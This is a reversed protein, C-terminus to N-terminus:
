LGPVPFEPLWGPNVGVQGSSNHGWCTATGDGLRACSHGAADVGGIGSGGAAVGTAGSVGAVAVPQLRDTRTGDGLQGTTNAGWCRVSGDALTACTHNAGASVTKATTIGSVAVPAARDTRTGDGLQGSYNSGWCRVGGGALVVCRHALGVSVSAVGSLGPNGVVLDHGWCRVTADAMRACASDGGAAIATAGSALVTAGPDTEWATCRVAGTATLYCVPGVEGDFAAVATAGSIGPLLYPTVFSFVGGDFPAVVVDNGWCLVRGAGTAICSHARGADLSVAGSSVVTLPQFTGDGPPWGGSGVASESNSGWCRVAGSVLACNHAGGAAVTSAGTLGVVAIARPRVTTAETAGIRVPAGWCYVATTPLLACSVGEAATVGVAGVLGAVTVPAYRAVTTGDGVEGSLNAGRCTVQGGTVLACLHSADFFSYRDFWHASASIRSAGAIGAVTAPATAGDGWCQVDGDVLLACSGYLTAALAKAPNAPGLGVVSVPLLSDTATGDGLQGDRNWGWCKVAGTSLVACSHGPSIDEEFRGTGATAVATAGSIGAVRVAAGFSDRLTGDGLQGADNWGWCWVSGGAAVACSHSGTVAVATAGAVGAVTSILVQPYMAADWCKVGGAVIACNGSIATAGAIGSLTKATSGFQYGWCKIYGGPLLACTRDVQWAGSGIAATDYHGNVDVILHTAAHTYVCLKGGEGLRVVAAAAMTRGTVYNVNSATPRPDGCPYVTLHGGGSPTVATVTVSVAGAGAPVGLRGAIPVTLTGRAPVVGAPVGTGYRTDAARVPVMAGFASGAALYGAVDAILHTAAHTYVCVRGGVGPKVVVADATTEGAVYNVNSATPRASGCPWVTLHGGASPTVAAVNVAVAAADAPVGYKGAVPVELTGRAPVVGAPVGTGIRTDAARVPVLGAFASGQPWYGAVDAILHTTAHTYVCVRGGTGPRTLAMNAVTRGAPYNLVSATPRAQGCPWVTLHGGASPTVAAVSLVVAVADQPVGLKGAVPVELTGRAPVVGVPVGTGDRTDAARFPTFSMVEPAAAVVAAPAGGPVGVLLGAVLALVAFGGPLWRSREM